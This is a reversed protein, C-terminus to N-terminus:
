SYGGATEFFIGSHAMAEVDRTRPYPWWPAFADPRRACGIFFAGRVPALMSLALPGPLFCVRLGASVM